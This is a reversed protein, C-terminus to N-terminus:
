AATEEDEGTQGRGDEEGAERLDVGSGKEDKGGEKGDDAGGVCDTAHLPAPAEVMATDKKQDVHVQHGEAHDEEQEKVWVSV